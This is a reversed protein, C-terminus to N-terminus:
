EDGGEEEPIDKLVSSRAEQKNQCFNKWDCYKCGDIDKYVLPSKPIRGKKLNEGIATLSANVSKFLAEFEEASVAKAGDLNPKGAYENKRDLANIVAKDSLILGSRCNKKSLEKEAENKGEGRKVKVVSPNAIIYSVGAPLANEDSQLVSYLYMPLQMDIGNFVNERSFKKFGTKYDIIRYYNKEGNKFVDVRDIVGNMTVTSGDSLPLRVPPCAGKEDSVPLERAVTEFSSTEAEKRFSFLIRRLKKIINQYNAFFMGTADDGSLLNELEERAFEEIKGNLDVDKDLAAPLLKELGKHILNGFELSKMEAQREPFIGLGYRIFYSFPCESFKDAKSYSLVINKGFLAEANKESLSQRDSFGKSIFDAYETNDLLKKVEESRTRSYFEFATRPNRIRNERDSFGSQLPCEATKLLPFIKRVEALYSSEISSALGKLPYSFFCKESASSAALTFLFKEYNIKRSVTDGIELGYNEELSIIEEDTFLRDESIERPFSYEACGLVFVAKPSMFPFMAVTGTVVRDVSTPLIAIDSEEAASCVVDYFDELTVTKEGCVFVMEDLMNIVADYVQLQESYLSHEDFDRYFSATESIKDAMKVFSMVEYVAAAYNKVTNKRGAATIKAVVETFYERLNNIIELKKEDEENTKESGFGSPSKIFPRSFGAAAYKWKAFYNELLLVANEDASLFGTKYATLVNEASYGNLAASLVATIFTVPSKQKLPTKRHYFVPIGYEEFVPSIIGAYTDIDRAVVAIDSYRYGNKVLESIEAAADTVEDFLDSARYIRINKPENEFVAKNEAFLNESLFRVDDTKFRVPEPMVTYDIKGGIKTIRGFLRSVNEFVGWLPNEPEFSLNEKGLCTVTVDTGSEYLAALVSRENANFTKFQDAFVATNKMIGSALIAKSALTYLDDPDFYEGMFLSEYAAYSRAIDSLKGNNEAESIKLFEEASVGRSKLMRFTDTVLNVFKINKYGQPYYEFSPCVTKVAELALVKRGVKGLVADPVRSIRDLLLRCFRKFSYIRVYVMLEPGLLSMYFKEEALTYQDPVLVYIRNEFDSIGSERREEALKKVRQAAETTKGSGCKGYIVAFKKM